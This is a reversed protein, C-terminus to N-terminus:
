APAIMDLRVNDRPLQLVRSNVDHPRWGVPLLMYSTSTTALLQLGRYEFKYLSDPIDIASVEIGPGSIALRQQSYAVARASHQLGAVIEQARLTGVNAAYLTTFWFLGVCALAALLGVEWQTGRNRRTRVSILSESYALLLSAAMLMGPLALGLRGLGGPLIVALLVVAAM